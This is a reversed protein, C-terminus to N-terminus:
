WLVSLCGSIDAYCLQLDSLCSTRKICSLLNFGKLVVKVSTFGSCLDKM